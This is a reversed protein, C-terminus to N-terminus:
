DSVKGLDADDAHKSSPASDLQASPPAPSAGTGPMPSAPSGVAAAQSGVVPQVNALTQRLVDKVSADDLLAVIPGPPHLFLSVEFTKLFDMGVLIETSSQELIIVGVKHVGEVTVGGLATLKVDTSGDAFTVSTTGYLILGLPFVQLIPMSVFGSFGTDIIVEFEQSSNPLPGSISVKIAPAGSNDLYGIVNPM